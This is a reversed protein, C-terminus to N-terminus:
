VWEHIIKLKTLKNTYIFRTIFNIDAIDQASKPVKNLTGDKNKSKGFIICGASSNENRGGHIRVGEFNVGKPDKISVANSTTGVRPFPGPNKFDVRSDEPIPTRYVKLADNGTNPDLTMNYTGDPLIFPIATKSQIKVDRIPDEVTFGLVQGNYWMTGVTRTTNAAERVMVLTNGGARVAAQTAPKLKELPIYDGSITGGTTPGDQATGTIIGSTSINLGTASPPPFPPTGVGATIILEAAKKIIGVIDLEYFKGLTPRDLIVNLAGLNTTWINNSITHNITTVAQALETGIGNEGKYGKPLADKNIKFLSGVVLGGIGDMEFSFKFPLINRNKGPSEVLNQFYVILDRLANKAKSSAEGINVTNATGETPKKSLLGFLVVIGALSAAMTPSKTGENYNLSNRKPDGKQKLIRDTVKKNFDIMTNTQMGMQGGKGSQAGIAVISSQAPFTQSQLSYSKVISNANQLQLEFLSDPKNPATYNIDIVRAINDVPDVHVEFNNVNGLSSQIGSMINKVYNYLNIENKEKNDSSELSQNLSQRYLFDLSVYINGIIGLEKKPNSEYFYPQDLTKLIDLAAVADSANLVFATTTAAAATTSITISGLKYDKLNSTKNTISVLGSNRFNIGPDKGALATTFNTAPISNSNPTLNVEMNVGITKLYQQILYLYYASVVQSSDVNGNEVITTAGQEIFQESLLGVLGDNYLWNDKDNGTFATNVISFTSPDTIKKISTLFDKEKVGRGESAAKLEKIINDATTNATAATATTSEKITPAVQEYWLPSKILCITPDVSVQLPHAVCLLNDAKKGSYTPTKTSLKILPKKDTSSRAIIYENMIDFAAELTIYVKLDSGPQIFQNFDGYNTLGPISSINNKKLLYKGGLSTLTKSEPDKLKFNLEAWIGALTNKQYYDAFKLSPTTGQKDFLENLFGDGLVSSSDYMKYEDLDARVYNVKLSEIIEGTSIITTQCDYGGDERASWQYNKIYGYIADYNGGSDICKKYLTNLINERDFDEPKKPNLLTNSYFDTFAPNYTGKQDIYPVWGWEILATYGSRM